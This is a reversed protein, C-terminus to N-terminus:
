KRIAANFKEHKKGEAIFKEKTKTKKDKARARERNDADTYYYYPPVASHMTVHNGLKRM